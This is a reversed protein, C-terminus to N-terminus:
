LVRKKGEPKKRSSGAAVGSSTASNGGDPSMERCLKPTAASLQKLVARLEHVDTALIGFRAMIDAVDADRPVQGMTALDQLMSGLRRAVGETRITVTVLEGLAQSKLIDAETSTLKETTM